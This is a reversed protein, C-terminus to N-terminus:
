RRSLQLQGSGESSMMTVTQRGDRVIVRIRGGIGFQPNYFDGIFRGPRVMILEGTQRVTTSQTACVAAVSYVTSSLRSYSVRCRVRETEGSPLRVYGGGSWNGALSQASASLPALVAGLLVLCFTLRPLPLRLTMPRLRPNGTAIRSRLHTNGPPMYAAQPITACAAAARTRHDSGGILAARLPAGDEPM